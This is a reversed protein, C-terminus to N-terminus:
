KEVVYALEKLASDTRDRLAQRQAYWAEYASVPALPSMEEYTQVMDRWQTLMRTAVELRETAHMPDGTLMAVEQEMELDIKVAELLYVDNLVSDYRKPGIEPQKLTENFQDIYHQIVQLATRAM